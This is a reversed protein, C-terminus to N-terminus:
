IYLQLLAAKGQVLQVQEQEQVMQVLKGIYRLSFM